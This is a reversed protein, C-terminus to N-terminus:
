VVSCCVAVCQLLVRIVSGDLLMLLDKDVPFRSMLVTRRSIKPRFKARSIQMGPFLATVQDLRRTNLQSVSCCAAVRQLM